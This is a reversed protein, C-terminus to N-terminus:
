EQRSGTCQHLRTLADVTGGAVLSDVHQKHRSIRSLDRAIDFEDLEDPDENLEQVLADVVDAM